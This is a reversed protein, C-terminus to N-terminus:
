EVLNRLEYIENIIKKTAEDFKDKGKFEEKSIYFPEGYIVTVKSFFNPRRTIYVPIIPKELHYAIFAAGKKYVNGIEAEDKIVKGEPFLILKANENSKFTNISAMMSRVDVNERDVSFVGYKKAIFRFWAYKFMEKKAVISIDRDYKM